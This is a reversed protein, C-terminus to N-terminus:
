YEITEIVHNQNTYVCIDGAIELSKKVITKADLDTNAVLARAAALAYNGGSGTALIDDDMRVVDGTGSVLFSANKDAVILIAELKRLARDTRWNKVLAVCARELIGQHEELKSEFLDLLTFADATSGAFGAIVKGKFLRRVKVANAKLVSSQGMTVQGDGGVAVVNNRRVSVITTM